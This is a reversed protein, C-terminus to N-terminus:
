FFAATNTTAANPIPDNNYRKIITVWNKSLIFESAIWSLGKPHPKLFSIEIGHHAVGVVTGRVACPFSAYKGNTPSKVRVLDGVHFDFPKM